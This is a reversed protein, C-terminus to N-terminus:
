SLFVLVKPVLGIVISFFKTLLCIVSSAESNKEEVDASLLSKIIFCIILLSLLNLPVPSYAERGILSFSLTASLNNLM